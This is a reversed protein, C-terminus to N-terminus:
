GILAIPILLAIISFTATAFDLFAPQVAILTVLYPLTMPELPETIGRKKFCILESLAIGMVSGLM